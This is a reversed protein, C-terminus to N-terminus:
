GRAVVIGWIEKAGSQKLIRAVEEITSGTTYVDDILLIKKGVVREKEKIYFANKINEEREKGKFTIQPATEKIKLLIDNYISLGLYEALFKAIEESQNFGRWKKRKLSLPIPMILFDSFDKKNKEILQLHAIILIALDQSIEKVFPEYKFSHILKKIIENQYPLAFFLGNLKKSNCRKCKGPNPLRIPKQCLCYSCNLIELTAQCDECLYTGEKKCGFCFKPSFTDLLFYGIESLFSKRPNM